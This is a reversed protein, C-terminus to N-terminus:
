DMISLEKHDFYTDLILDDVKSVQQTMDGVSSGSTDYCHIIFDSKASKEEASMEGKFLSTSFLGAGNDSKKKWYDSLNSRDIIARRLRVGDPTFACIVHKMAGDWGREFLISSLFITYISKKNKELFREYADNLPAEAFSILKDFDKDNDVAAPDLTASPGTFPYKLYNDLIDKNVIPDFNLIFKLLADADFVPIGIQEFAKAVATSGSYRCGTLGVKVM